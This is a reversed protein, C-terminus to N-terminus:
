HAKQDYFRRIIKTFAELRSLIGGILLCANKTFDNSKLEPKLIDRIVHNIYKQVLELNIIVKRELANELEQGAESVRANKMKDLIWRPNGQEIQQRIQSSGRFYVYALKDIDRTSFKNGSVKQVFADALNKDFGKVRTFPRLTYMYSRLPFRGSFVATKVTDSMEDMIGLRISVWAPSRDLEMAIGQLTLGSCKYLEGIMIAEELTNLKSENSLRILNIIAQTEDAGISEIPVVTIKLKFSCRLRKFGDLLIFRDSSKIVGILPRLIGKELISNILLKERDPDRLRCQEYQRDIQNIEIEPM